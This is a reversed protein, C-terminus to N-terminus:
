PESAACGEGDLSPIVVEVLTTQLETVGDGILVVRMRYRIPEPGREIRENALVVRFTVRTGPTVHDFRDAHQVAGSPPEARVAEIGRVFETADLDDGPVDDVRLAIDIPTEDVLTRISDVISAGLLSADRGIEIVIPEGDATVAGTERAVAELDRRTEAYGWVEPYVGLVKAGIANLARITEDYGHPRPVVDITYDNEGTPGNHSPADTIWVVIRSGSRRFCPYGVLESPCSRAPVIPPLGEGTAAQYLAEIGSEAQDSGSALTLADLGRQVAALDSTSAALLRFPVDTADGYPGFPFDAYEAVSMWANPITAAIGPAITDRLRRRVEDIVSGMSGTVDVLFLVDAQQIRSIFSVTVDRPPERPPLEVCEDPEEDIWADPADRTPADPGADLLAADLHADPVDLGTKAGCGAVLTLGVVGVLLASARARMTGAGRGVHSGEASANM